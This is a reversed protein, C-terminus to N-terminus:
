PSIQETRSIMLSTPPPEAVVTSSSSAFASFGEGAARNPSGGLTRVLTNCSELRGDIGANSSLRDQRALIGHQALGQLRRSRIDILQQNTVLVRLAEEKLAHIIKTLHHLRSPRRRCAHHLAGRIFGFHLFAGVTNQPFLCCSWSRVRKTASSDLLRRM